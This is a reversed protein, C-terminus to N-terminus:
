KKSSPCVEHEPDWWLVHYKEGVKIGWLRQAGNFRLTFLEDFDVGGPFIDQIRDRAFKAFDEILVPHNRENGLIDAWTQNQYSKFHQMISCISSTDSKGKEIPLDSDFKDFVFHIHLHHTSVGEGTGFKKNPKNSVKPLSKMQRKDAM